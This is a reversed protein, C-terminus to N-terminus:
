NRREKLEDGHRSSTLLTAYRTPFPVLSQYINTYLICRVIDTAVPTPSRVILLALSPSSFNHPLCRFKTHNHSSIHTRKILSNSPKGIKRAHTHARAHTRAHTRARKCTHTLINGKLVRHIHNRLLMQLIKKSNM